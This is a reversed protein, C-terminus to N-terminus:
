KTLIEWKSFPRPLENSCGSDGGDLINQALNPQFEYLPELSKFFFTLRNKNNGLLIGKFFVHGKM